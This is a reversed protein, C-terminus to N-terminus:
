RIARPGSWKYLPVKFSKDTTVDGGSLIEAIKKASNNKETIILRMPPSLLLPPLRCRFASGAPPAKEM